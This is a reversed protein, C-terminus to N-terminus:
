HERYPRRTKYLESQEKLDRLLEKQGSSLAMGAAKQVTQAAEDFRGAEAFAAALTGLFNADAYKMLECARTALRIAQAGDRTKETESTALYWALNNLVGPQDPKRQLSERYCAIAEEIRGERSLVLGLENLAEVYDPEIRLAERYHFIAEKPRKLLGMLLALNYHAKAFGPKIRLAEAFHRVAEDSRGQRGLAIGLNYHAEASDPRIQLAQEYQVIAEDLRGMNALTIGLNNRANEDNPEIRVAESYHAAAEQLKGKQQLYLGLNNQMPGNKSTVSLAHEFLTASNHWYGVQVWTIGTLISIVLGACLGLLTKKRRSLAKEAQPRRILLEPIGWAAIIAIGILPIYTYRDAMAQGGVQVLGIVPVLTGLYWFWGVTLYAHRKWLRLVQLSALILLLGAVWVQWLSLSSRPHPYFVALGSPCLIKSIYKVYTLLANGFRISFPLLSGSIIAGTGRQAVCTVAASVATLIFLPAKEWFLQSIQKWRIARNLGKAGVENLRGLPWYDMLLLVFPLTVLMPKAMLGLAFSLVVWVYRGMRPREVYRIYCWSTLMWFFASLVDKREAVWAVSEVHLPHVAFLAAVFTSCWLSGTARRLLFMLLLVNALHILLSSLHHGWPRLGYLECDLMHSLWTLPHWNAQTMTTFAWSISAHTWGAQVMLNHWVYGDDDFLVFDSRLVQWYPVLTLLILCLGIMPAYRSEIGKRSM